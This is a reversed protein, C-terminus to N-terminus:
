QELSLVVGLAVQQAEEKLGVAVLSQLVKQFVGPHTKGPSYENLAVAALLAVEGLRDNNSAERIQELLGDTPMVYDNVLTLDVLKEYIDRSAVNHLVSERGLGSFVSWIELSKVLEPERFWPKLADDPFAISNTPLNEILVNALYLIVSDQSKVSDTSENKLWATVWREPPVINGYLMLLLGNRVAHPSLTAPSIGSVTDAFPLLAIPLGQRSTSELLSSVMRKREAADTSKAYLAYHDWLHLSAPDVGLKDEKGAIDSYVRALRATDIIGRRAAEVNLTARQYAMLNPDTAMIMLTPTPIEQPKKLKLRSYDFRGLGKIVAREIDSLEEIDKVSNITHRYDPRSALITLVRSGPIGTVASRDFSRTSVSHIGARQVTMASQIQIFTCISELQRWFNNDSDNNVSAFDYHVARAELCAQAPYGGYMLAMIGARGLRGHSPEGEILTYLEVADDYAGMELLKELRLTFLDEGGSPGPDNDLMKIDGNSLLVRRSLLQAARSADGTSLLPIYKALVARRSGGWMDNGLSGKLPNTLPGLSEMAKRDMTKGTSPRPTKVPAAATASTAAPTTKAVPKAAPIKAAAPKVTASSPKKKETVTTKAAPKEPPPTAIKKKTGAMRDDTGRPVAVAAPKDGDPDPRSAVPIPGAMRDNALAGPGAAACTLVCGMLALRLFGSIM